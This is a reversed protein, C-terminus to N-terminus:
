SCLESHLSHLKSIIEGFSPRDRSEKEWCLRMLSYVLAPCHHPLGLRQGQQLADFLAADPINPIGPDQGYSFMEWLTIGYSWVDSKHSFKGESISEPAYWRIPLNRETRMRYYHDETFQALGFDSIKVHKDSSVLINRAALDRHVIHKLELYAMGEAVDIAFQLLRSTSLKDKHYQLYALLSGLEVYEMVLMMEPDEVLGKIEVINKHRLNKMIEMERRLDTFSEMSPNTMKIRKVAVEETTLGSCHTLTARMVEGYFGQGLTGKITLQEKDIVWSLLDGANSDPAGHISHNISESILDMNNVHLISNDEVDTLFTCASQGSSGNVTSQSLANYSFNGNPLPSQWKLVNKLISLGPEKPPRSAPLSPPTVDEDRIVPTAAPDIVVYSHSRRSNYVEYLIQNIDRVIAQPQKRSDHDVFWCEFMLKEIERHCGNPKSLSGGKSYWEKAERPSLQNLPKAGYSFIEWLTTGYAYVDAAASKSARSYDNHCEPPLWHVDADTYLIIGPDTLKVKFSNDTHSAVLINHCRIKGHCLQNEELYWLARAIHYAAEVLDVQRLQNEHRQLYKDLSGMPLFEMILATPNTLIMGITSVIADHQLFLVKDCQSLFEKLHTVKTEKRLTKVAVSKSDSCSRRLRGHSVVTLQGLFQPTNKSFVVADHPICQAACSCDGRTVLSNADQNERRCLLLDTKDYESPPICRTFNLNSEKSHYSLLQMISPFSARSGQLVYFDNADKFIKFTFVKESDPASANSCVDIYYEDYMTENERLIYCGAENSCKEELKQYAFVAGIPGHCKMARLNILSPTPLDKCLNFTWKETLRYYGDLLSVFSHMQPKGHFKLYQPVGNQRSIEVTEDNRMSIYCLDEISCIYTWAEKRRQVCMRLGPYVPHYPSVCISVEYVKGGDDVLVSYTESGYDPVLETLEQLYKEKVFEANQRSNKWGRSVAKQLPDRLFNDWLPSRKLDQPLFDRSNYKMTDPTLKLELMLRIIDTAVLGLARERLQRGMLEPVKGDLFDNRVQHFYYSFTRADTKEILRKISPTRFRLRLQFTLNKECPLEIRKSPAYWLLNGPSWLGFLHRSIPQIKLYKCAEIIVDEVLYSKQDSLIFPKEGTCFEVILKGEM